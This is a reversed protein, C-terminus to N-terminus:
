FHLPSDLAENPLALNCQEPQMSHAAQYNSNKPDNILEINNLFKSWKKVDNNNFDYKSSDLPKGRKSHWFIYTNKGVRKVLYHTIEHM